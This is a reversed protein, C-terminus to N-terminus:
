ANETQTVKIGECFEALTMNYLDASDAKEPNTRQYHLIYILLCSGCATPRRKATYNPHEICQIRLM